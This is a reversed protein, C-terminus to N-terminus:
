MCTKANGVRNEPSPIIESFSLIFAKALGEGSQALGAPVSAPFHPRPPPLGCVGAPSRAPFGALVDEVANVHLLVRSATYMRTCAFLTQAMNIVANELIM